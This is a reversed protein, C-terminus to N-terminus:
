YKMWTLCPNLTSVLRKKYGQLSKDPSQTQNQIWEKFEQLGQIGDQCDFERLIELANVPGIKDIGPTYDSGVLYALQILKMQNLGMKEQIEQISFYECFKQQNFFHRYVHNGGFLFIDSDDTVIGDVLGQNELFACQAEAEAPAILFPLGFHILLQQTELIMSQTIDSADRMQKRQQIVLADVQDKLSDKTSDFQSMFRQFELNEEELDIPVDMRTSEQNEELQVEEDEIVIPEQSRQTNQIEIRPSLSQVDQLIEKSLEKSHLDKTFTDFIIEKKHDDLIDLVDQVDLVDEVDLSEEVLNIVNKDLTKEVIQVNHDVSHDEIPIKIDHLDKYELVQEEDEDEFGLVNNIDPEKVVLDRHLDILHTNVHNLTELKDDLANEIPDDLKDDLADVPVDLTDLEDLEVFADFSFKFERTKILFDLYFGLCSERHSKLISKGRIKQILDIQNQIEVENWNYVIDEMQNIYSQIETEISPTILSKWKALFLDVNEIDQTNKPVHSQQPVQEDDDSLIIVSVNKKPESIPQFKTELVFEDDDDSSISIIDTEMDDIRKGQKSHIDNSNMQMVYGGTQTDKFLAFETNREGAIRKNSIM